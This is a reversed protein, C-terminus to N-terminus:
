GLIAGELALVQRFVRGLFQRGGPPPLTLHAALETPLVGQDAASGRTLKGAGAFLRILPDPASSPAGGWKHNHHRAPNSGWLLAAM